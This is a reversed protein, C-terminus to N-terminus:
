RQVRGSADGALLQEVEDVTVLNFDGPISHKLCSAAAAFEITRQPDYGSLVGYILGATFADGGGVRDVIQMEYTRSTYCGTADCLLGALRNVSASVGHRLTMAVCALGFRQRLLEAARQDQLAGGTETAPARIGFLKEADERGGIFVNVYEMLGTLVRGAEKLTWLKSRYNCDCSVKLGLRQATRLGDTLVAIVSKGLAPATGSFHLWDKGALITDWDFEKPRIERISSHARDYIVKSPRQSAGTELYLQGLREGGRVIYDTNVGYRRLYNICAQGIEHAPVKSVAYAEVGFHVLSVGVNAEAGTYRAVFEEAQVFRQYDKTALSLLLEGFTVVKKAADHCTSNV